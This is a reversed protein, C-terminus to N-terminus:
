LTSGDAEASFIFTAVGLATTSHMADLCLRVLVSESAAMSLDAYFDLGPIIQLPNADAM